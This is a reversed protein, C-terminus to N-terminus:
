VIQFTYAVFVFSMSIMFLVAAVSLKDTVATYLHFFDCEKRYGKINNLKTESNRQGFTVPM